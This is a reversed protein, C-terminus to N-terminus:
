DKAQLQQTTSLLQEEHKEQLEKLQQEKQSAQIGAATLAGSAEEMLWAQESYKKKLAQYADHYEIAADQYLKVDQLMDGPGEEHQDPATPTKRVAIQSALDQPPVIVIEGSDDSDTDASNM